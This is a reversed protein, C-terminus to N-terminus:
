HEKLYGKRYATLLRHLDNIQVQIEAGRDTEAVMIRHDSREIIQKTSIIDTGRAVADARSTFPEHAALYFGKSHYVRSYGAIGTTRHYAEAFGGEIVLLRGDAKQPTEGRSAHVPVHGNIVHRQAGQVEFHDLIGDIVDAKDRLLYYYGKPEEHTAKDAIFYREFTSMKGKDFLPSDPGCWLYTFFDRATHREATTAAEDYATRVIQEVRDMLARGALPEGFINVKKLSGDANLPISAHFLLNGNTVKYMSGHSLIFHIHRQLRESMRFSRCLSEMLMAEEPSLQCPFQPDVTPFNCDLLAYRKGAISVSADNFNCCGLMDRDAMNWEPYQTVLQGLLKFEIIAIAKHMRADLLRQKKAPQGDRRLYHPHFLTCDDHGYTELAFTALPVLNIGYGEELVASNGYRLSLRLVTAICCMNGAAAGMWLIDHNGWQIDLHHYNCLHDMIIHAGPGRDFIDGLIHLREIALRQIVYCIAVIFHDARRTEIIADIIAVYYAHKSTNDASEHMLEEIIYAYEEPLTKRVKSRTYKQSFNRCILVLNYLTRRYFANDLEYQRHMLELKQEPYYILSCFEHQEHETLPAVGEPRLPGDASFIDTVRRKIRGSANRLVHLFAEHEGHLDAVFHETPKPLNLIAKLNIIETTVSPINPFEHALLQLYRLDEMVTKSRKMHTTKYLDATANSPM